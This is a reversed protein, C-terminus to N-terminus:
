TLVGTAGEQKVNRSSSSGCITLCYGASSLQVTPVLLLLHYCHWLLELEMRVALVEQLTPGRTASIM